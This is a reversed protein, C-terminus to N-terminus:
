LMELLKFWETEHGAAGIRINLQPYNIANPMYFLDPQDLFVQLLLKQDDDVIGLKHFEKLKNEYLKEYVEVLENHIIFISGAFHVVHSALIAYPTTKEEKVPLIGRQRIPINGEIHQYMIKKPLADINITKNYLKSTEWLRIGFDIWSYFKYDPYRKKAENVYNIKSHNVVNYEPYIFPIAKKKHHPILNQFRSSKIIETELSLYKHYFTNVCDNNLFIVNNGFTYKNLLYNQIKDSIFVVIKYKMQSSYKYFADCYSEIGRPINKWNGRNIDRFATVFLIDNKM